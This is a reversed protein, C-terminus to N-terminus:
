QKANNKEESEDVLIKNTIEAFDQLTLKEARVNEDLQLEKLIELGEEKSMFVKTNTLANLLTKRRQMFASKIIRFMVGRSKVEVPPEKRLTLKIVKSTVEPEPIFSDNPVEMIGEATAYYYVSYTIAGTEKEGPIAILRDAVEKQIMVTISELDLRDELLKMIIPTTIYYPLNAVIKAFKFGNKEKEEKIIKNLRVKLVDGHILEFNDYLSFRDTLIKIMKKDLEICIVKGAKELLDKTLTGLGPGIEIVLDEKTIHSNEVIKDVVHQNILFNQGLAKNARIKYKKMIFKTDELINSM